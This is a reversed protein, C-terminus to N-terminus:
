CDRCIRLKRDIAEDEPSRIGSNEEVKPPVDKAGPQRHGIPAPWVAQEVDNDAQGTTQASPSAHCGERDEKRPNAGDRETATESMGCYTPRLKALRAATPCYKSWLAPASDPYRNFETALDRTAARPRNMRARLGPMRALRRLDPFTAVPPPGLSLREGFRSGRGFLLRAPNEPVRM